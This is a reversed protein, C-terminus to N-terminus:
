LFCLSVWGQSWLGRIISEFCEDFTAQEMKALIMTGYSPDLPTRDLSVTVKPVLLMKPLGLSHYQIM